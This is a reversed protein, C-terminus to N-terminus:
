NLWATAVEIIGKFEAKHLTIWTSTGSTSPASNQMVQESEFDPIIQENIVEGEFELSKLYHACM